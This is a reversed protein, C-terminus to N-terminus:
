LSVRNEIDGDVDGQSIIGYNSGEIIVTNGGRGLGSIGIEDINYDDSLRILAPAFKVKHLSTRNTFTVDTLEVGSFNTKLTDLEDDFFLRISAYIQRERQKRVKNILDVIDSTKIFKDRQSKREKEKLKQEVRDEINTDGAVQRLRRKEEYAKIGLQYGLYLIISGLVISFGNLLWQTPNAYGGGSVAGFIVGIIAAFILRLSLEDKRSSSDTLFSLENLLYTTQSMSILGAFAGVFCALGLITSAARVGSPDIAQYLFSVLVTALLFVPFYGGIGKEISRRASAWFVFLYPLALVGGVKFSFQPPFDKLSTIFSSSVLYLLYGAAYASIVGSLISLIYAKRKLVISDKPSIGMICNDFCVRYIKADTLDAGRLDSDTFKSKELRSDKFSADILDSRSFETNKLTTGKFSANRLDSDSFKFGGLKMEEFSSDRFNCEEFDFRIPEGVETEGKIIERRKWHDFLNLGQFETDFEINKDM